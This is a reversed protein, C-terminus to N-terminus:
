EESLLNIRKKLTTVGINEKDWKEVDRLKVKEMIYMVKEPSIDVTIAALTLVMKTICAMKNESSFNKYKGFTSEIIDSTCLLIPVQPLLILCEKAYERIQYVIKKWQESLLYDQTNILANCEQLTQRSLGNNKLIKEITGIIRDLSSIEHIFSEYELLWSLVDREASELNKNKLANLFGEAWQADKGINQFISKKRAGAPILHALNSQLLKSRMESLHQNFSMYVPDKLYRKEMLIAVRHSIDHIHTIGALSLGKKLNSGHDAVAYLISGLEQQLNSLERKVDEGTWQDRIKIRLITLDKYTLARSFDIQSSRVGYIVLIKSSGIQISHDLIIIWDSAKEKLRTLEYYGVKCVWNELTTHSPTKDFDQYYRNEIQCQQSLGRFSISTQLM